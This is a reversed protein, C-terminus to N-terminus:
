RLASSKNKVDYDPAVFGHTNCQSNGDGDGDDRGHDSIAVSSAETVRLSLQDRLNM